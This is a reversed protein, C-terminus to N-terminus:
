PLSTNEQPVTNGSLDVNELRLDLCSKCQIGVAYGQITLNRIIVDTAQDICIGVGEFSDMDTSASAGQVTAGQFDLVIERGRIIVVPASEEQGGPILYTGQRISSSERVVMGRTLSLEPGAPGCGWLLLGMVLCIGWEKM